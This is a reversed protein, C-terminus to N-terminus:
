VDYNIFLRMDPIFRTDENYLIIGRIEICMWKASKFFLYFVHQELMKSFRYIPVKQIKTHRM